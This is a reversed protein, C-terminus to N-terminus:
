AMEKRFVDKDEELLSKVEQIAHSVTGVHGVGFYEKIQELSADSVTQCLYMALKRPINRQQRGSQRKVIESKSKGSIHCVAEVIDNMPITQLTTTKVKSKQKYIKRWVQKIFSNDGLVSPLAKKGYFKRMEQDIGLEVYQRYAVSRNRAGVMEHILDKNLTIGSDAKGVYSPYSSWKYRELRKVLPTNTEIPNRHIYRSLQLLYADADVVIAKFRGRFLPGDTKRLRNYRQTYVGNIHRMIRSLNARPTQLLLHYHNGMLCYAHYVAEFREHAEQMTILFAEFYKTDHFVNQRGKGRNM